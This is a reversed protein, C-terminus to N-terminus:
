YQRETETVRDAVALVVDPDVLPWRTATLLSEESSGSSSGDASGDLVVARPREVGVLAVLEDAGDGDVDSVVAHPSYDADDDAPALASAGGFGDEWSWASVALDTGVHVLTDTGDGDLDAQRFVGTGYGPEDLVLTEGVQEFSDGRSVLGRLVTTRGLTDVEVLDDRGDGDLDGVTWTTRAGPSREVEAWTAERQWDEDATSLMVTVTATDDLATGVALDDRGDGDFDGLAATGTGYDFTGVEEAPPVVMLSSRRPAPDGADLPGPAVAVRLSSGDGDVTVRDLVGDGDVDGLVTRPNVEAVRETDGVAAGDSRQLQGGDLDLLLLDGLGDGDLDGRVAPDERAPAPDAPLPLGAAAPDTAPDSATDRPADDPWLLVGAAVAGAALALGLGAALRGRRPRGAPPPPRLAAGSGTSREHGGLRRLEERLAAAGPHRDAPDKALARALVPDFAAKAPHGEPLQPVPASVHAMAVQVDSGAYPPRGTLAEVLLCGVAYVDSAPTAPAGRTLEPALYSWTGAVAGPSTLGSSETLAVGFDCLYVHPRDLRDDRLLVNAPKVDRHVVGVAHAAVLADCVQAVVTAALEPRLPGHVALLRGLDGGTALRTVLYPSGAHEGHEYIAIVHPSDLRALVAAERQFRAAFAPSDALAGRVVKIAVRRGLSTDTAAFVQGMGGVGVVADIRYGGLTSGVRLPGAAGAPGTM